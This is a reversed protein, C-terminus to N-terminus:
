PIVTIYDNDQASVVAVEQPVRIYEYTTDLGRSLDASHETVDSSEQRFGENQITAGRPSNTGLFDDVDEYEPIAEQEPRNVEIYSLNKKVTLHDEIAYDTRGKRYQVTELNSLNM